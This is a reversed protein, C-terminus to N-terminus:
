KPIRAEIWSAIDDIEQAHGQENHSEHFWGPYVKLTKDPQTMQDFFWRSGEPLCIQDADGHVMLIPLNLNSAHARVWAQTDLYETGWRATMTHFVRPDTQYAQVVRPDRSLQAPELPSKIVFSPWIISLLRAAAVLFPSAAKSSDIPAASVIVGELGDPHRLVYDLVVLAGMSHGYLFVPLQTDQERVTELFAGLDRRYESWSRIFGRQGPSRGHGRQDYAYLAYGRPVLGEVLNTYRDSHEAVGHVIVLSAKPQDAPLGPRSEMSSKSPSRSWSQFFLSVGDMGQFTAETHHM